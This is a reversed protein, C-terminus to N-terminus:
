TQAFATAVLALPACCGMVLAAIGCRLQRMDFDKRPSRWRAIRLVFRSAPPPALMRLLFKWVTLWTIGPTRGESSGTNKRGRLFSVAKRLSDQVHFLSQKSM